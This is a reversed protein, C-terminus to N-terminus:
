GHHIPALSSIRRAAQLDRKAAANSMTVSQANEMVQWFYDSADGGVASPKIFVLICGGGPIGLPCAQSSGAQVANVLPRDSALAEQNANEFSVPIALGSFEFM